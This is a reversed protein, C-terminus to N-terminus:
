WEGIHHNLEGTIEKITLGRTEKPDWIQIHELTSLMDYNFHYLIKM